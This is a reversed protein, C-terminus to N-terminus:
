ETWPRASRCGGVRPDGAQRGLSVTHERDRLEACAPQTVVRHRDADAAPPQVAQKATHIRDTMAAQRQTAAKPGRHERATVPRHETMERRRREPPEPGPLLPADVDRDRTARAVDVAQPHVPRTPQLAVDQDAVAQTDRHGRPRQQVEGRDQRRLRQARDHAARLSLARDRQALDVLQEGAGVAMAVVAFSRATIASPGAGVRM